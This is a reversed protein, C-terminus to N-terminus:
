VVLKHAIILAIRKTQLWTCVQVHGDGNATLRAEVNM